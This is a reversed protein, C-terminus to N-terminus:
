YAGEFDVVSNQLMVAKITKTGVSGDVDTGTLGVAEQLTKVDVEEGAIYCHPYNAIVIKYAPQPSAPPENGLFVCIMVGFLLVMVLLYALMIDIKM